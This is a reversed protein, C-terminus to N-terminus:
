QKGNRKNIEAVALATCAGQDLEFMKARTRQEIEDSYVDYAGKDHKVQAIGLQQCVQVDTLDQVLDALPKNAHAKPVVVPFAFLAVVVALTVKNM